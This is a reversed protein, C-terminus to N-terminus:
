PAYVASLTLYGDAGSKGSGGGAGYATSAAAVGGNGGPGWISAAGGSSTGGTFQGGSGAGATGSNGGGGGGFWCVSTSAGILRATGGLVGGGTGGTAGSGGRGPLAVFTMGLTTLSSSTGNSSSAGGAGVVYNVTGGPPVPILFGQCLEGSGGGSSGGGGGGGGIMTLWAASVDAPIDISGTGSTTIEAITQLTSVGGGGGGGGGVIQGNLFDNYFKCLAAQLSSYWQQWEPSFNDVKEQTVPSHLPPPVFPCGM